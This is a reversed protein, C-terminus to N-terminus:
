QNLPPRSLNLERFFPPLDEGPPPPEPSEEVEAPPPTTEPVPPKVTPALLRKIVSPDDSYLGDLVGSAILTEIQEHPASAMALLQLGHRHAEELYGPPLPIVRDNPDALHTAPLALAMAYSAVFKLGVNTFLWDYNYPELTGLANKHRTEGDDNSGILQILPLNMALEPLLQQHLLQLEEPDYCQLFIKDRPWAYNEAQLTALLTRSLDKGEQRYWWPARPELVLGIPRALITELRRVLALHEELTAIADALPPAKAVGPHHLRLRRLQDLTLDSPYYSGDGRKKEPFVYEVDTSGALTLAQFVVPHGDATLAVPLVLYDAGLAAALTTTALSPTALPGSGGSGAILFKATAPLPLAILTLAVFFALDLLLKPM